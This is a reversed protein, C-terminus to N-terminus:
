QLIYININVYESSPMRWSHRTKELVVTIDPPEYKRLTLYGYRTAYFCAGRTAALNVSFSSGLKVNYSLPRTPPFFQVLNQSLASIVYLSIHDFKQTKHKRCSLMVYMICEFNFCRKLLFSEVDIFHRGTFYHHKKAHRLYCISYYNFLRDCIRSACTRKYLPQMSPVISM